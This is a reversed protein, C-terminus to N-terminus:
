RGLPNRMENPVDQGQRVGISAELESFVELKM